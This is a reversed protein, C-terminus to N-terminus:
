RLAADEAAIAEEIEEKTAKIVDGRPLTIDQCELGIVAITITDHDYARINGVYQFDQSKVNMGIRPRKIESTNM